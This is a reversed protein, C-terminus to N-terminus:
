PTIRWLRDGDGFAVLEKVRLRTMSAYMARKRLLPTQGPEQPLAATLEEATRPRVKLAELM